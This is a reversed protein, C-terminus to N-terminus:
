VPDQRASRGSPMLWRIGRRHKSATVMWRGQYLTENGQDRDCFVSIRKMPFQALVARNEPVIEDASQSERGSDSSNGTNKGSVLSFAARSQNASSQKRRWGGKVCCEGHAQLRASFGLSPPSERAFRLM